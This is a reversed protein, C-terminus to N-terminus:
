LFAYGIYSVELIDGKEVNLSFKGNIDTVTGNTTGKVIVNAGIVPIGAVDVVTGTIKKGKQYIVPNSSKVSLVIRNEVVSYGVNTESFVIDM